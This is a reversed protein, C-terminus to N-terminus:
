QILCRYYRQSGTASTDTCSKTAGNGQLITLLKWSTEQLNNKYFITYSPGSQTPISISANAGTKVVSMSVPKKAPVLMYYGYNLNGETTGRLTAVGGLTATAPLGDAGTLPAWVWTQWGDSVGLFDGIAAVTQNTTGLGDTVRGLHAYLAGPGALRAYVWYDGTPYTRTYNYWTGAVCWGVDYDRVGPDTVQATVYAQRLYDSCVETGVRDVPRYAYGQGSISSPVFDVYEMGLIAQQYYNHTPDNWYESSLVPNDIFKGGDFDYDEAEFMNNTQSFTDFKLAREVTTGLSDTVRIIGTYIANAALVPLSVARDSPDGGIVMLSSVDLGNLIVRIEATPITGVASSANFSLTTSPEFPHLGSHSLNSILPLDNRAPVVMFFNENANDGATRLTTVGNLTIKVLNGNTDNLPVWDYSQWGRSSFTFVGLSETTQTTTGVGSTVKWLGVRSTGGGGSLRGYINYSGAPFNRTFNMWDGTLGGYTWGVDYDKVDADGGAVANLYKQRAIDQCWETGPGPNDMARYAQGANGGWAPDHFDIEAYGTAGFYSIAPNNTSTPIPQNIYKGGEFDYDEAEWIFNGANFTDFLVSGNITLGVVDTVRIAASYVRNSKLGLYAVTRNNAPGGVVLSSSVDLGNVLVEIGSANITSTTSVANFTLGSSAPNFLASGNPALNAISPPQNGASQNLEVDDYHCAGGGGSIQQYVTRFRVKTTGAPAVLTAVTSTIADSVLDVQGNVNYYLWESGPTGNTFSESRFKALTTGGANVFLVEYFGANQGAIYDTTRSFIWGGGTFINGAVASIDQFVGTENTPTSWCGWNKLVNAGGHNPAQSEVVNGGCGHKTWGNFGSEFGPNTLLNAAGVTAAFAITAALVAVSRALPQFSSATSHTGVGARGLWTPNM